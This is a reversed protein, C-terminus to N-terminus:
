RKSFFIFYFNSSNLGKSIQLFETKRLSFPYQSYINRCLRCAYNEPKWSNIKKLRDPLINWTKPGLFSVSETGHFMLNVTRITFHSNRRLNYPRKNKVFIETTIPLYLAKTTKYTEIALLQPNRNHISVSVDKKLREEVSSTKDSYTIRAVTVCAYM